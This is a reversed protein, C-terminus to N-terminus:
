GSQVVFLDKNAIKHSQVVRENQMFTQKCQRMGPQNLDDALIWGGQPMNEVCRNFMHVSPEYKHRGDLYVFTLPSALSLGEEFSTDFHGSVINPTTAPCMAQLTQYALQRRAEVGELGVYTVDGFEEAAACMYAAGIGACTGIEFISTVQLKKILRMVTRGALAGMSAKRVRLSVGQPTKGIEQRYAAIQRCKELDDDSLPPLKM